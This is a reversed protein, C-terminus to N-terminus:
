HKQCKQHNNKTNRANKTIKKLTEPMKRSEEEHKQCKQHNKKTNRANKTFIKLTEPM